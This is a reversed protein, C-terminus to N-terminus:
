FQGLEKLSNESSIRADFEAELDQEGESLRDRIQGATSACM